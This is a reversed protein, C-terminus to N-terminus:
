GTLIDLNYSKSSLYEDIDKYPPPIFGNKINAFNRYKKHIADRGKNGAEDNDLLLYLNNTYRCILSFQFATMNSNGLAVINYLNNEYSKIVDFQGEVIFVYDKKVIEEKNEYLGFLHNGKNFSTNKYKAIKKFQREEESLLTRGVISVVDGYVDKFPMVVQYDNFFSFPITRASCSDEIIKYYLLNNKILEEKGIINTLSNLHELNPFYGFNFAEQTSELLRSNLYEKTENAAPYNNLLYNCAKCINDM